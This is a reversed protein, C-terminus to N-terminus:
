KFIRVYYVKNIVYMPLEVDYSVGRGRSAPFMSRISKIEYIKFENPMLSLLQQSIQATM